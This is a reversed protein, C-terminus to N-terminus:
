DLVNELATRAELEPMRMRVRTKEALIFDVAYLGIQVLLRMARRNQASFGDDLRAGAFNDFLPEISGHHSPAVSLRRGAGRPLLLREM